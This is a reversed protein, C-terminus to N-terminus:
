LRTVTKSLLQGNGGSTTTTAQEGRGGGCCQTLRREVRHRRHGAVRPGGRLRRCLHNLSCFRDGVLRALGRVAEGRCPKAGVHGVGDRRPGHRLAADAAHDVEEAVGVLAVLVLEDVVALRPALPVLLLGRSVERCQGLHRELRELRPRRGVGVQGHRPSAVRGQADTRVLSVHGVQLGDVRRHRGAVDDLVGGQGLRDGKDQLLMLFHPRRPGTAEDRRCLADVDASCLRDLRGNAGDGDSQWEVCCLEVVRSDLREVGVEVRRHLTPPPVLPRPVVRPAM